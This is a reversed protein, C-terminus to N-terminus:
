PQELLLLGPKKDIIHSTGNKVNKIMYGEKFQLHVKYTSKQIFQELFSFILGEDEGLDRMQM